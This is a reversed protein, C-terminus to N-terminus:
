VIHVGRLLPKRQTDYFWFWLLWQSWDCWDYVIWHVLWLEFCICTAPALRPFVHAPLDRNTKTKSRIPQSFPSLNKLWDCVTAICFWLLQSIVKSVWNFVARIRASPDTRITVMNSVKSELVLVVVLVLNKLVLTIGARWGADNRRSFALVTTM